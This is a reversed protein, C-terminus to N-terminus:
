YNLYEKYYNSHQAYHPDVEYPNIATADYYEQYVPATNSFEEQVNKPFAVIFSFINNNFIYLIKFGHPM